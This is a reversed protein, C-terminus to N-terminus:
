FEMDCVDDDDDVGFAASDLIVAADNLSELREKATDFSLDARVLAKRTKGKAGVIRYEVCVYGALWGLHRVIHKKAQIDNSFMGGTCERLLDPTLPIVGGCAVAIDRNKAGIKGQVSILENETAYENVPISQIPFKSLVFIKASADRHVLRARGIAQTTENQISRVYADRLQAQVPLNLKVRVGGQMEVSFQEFSVDDNVPTDTKNLARLENLLATVPKIYSGITVLTDVEKFDNIGRLAGFHGCEIGDLEIDKSRGKVGGTIHSSAFLVGKQGEKIKEMAIKIAANAPYSKSNLRNVTQIVQANQAVDIQVIKTDPIINTHSPTADLMIVNHTDLRYPLANGVISIIGDKIWVKDSTPKEMALEVKLLHLTWIMPPIKPMDKLVEARINDPIGRQAVIDIRNEDNIIEKVVSRTFELEHELKEADFGREKLAHLIDKGTDYADDFAAKVEPSCLEYIKGGLEYSTLEKVSEKRSEAFISSFFDEDIIVTRTKYHERTLMLHNEYELSSYPKSLKAHTHIILNCQQSARYQELYACDNKIPCTGKREDCLESYVRFGHRQLQTVYENRVCMTKGDTGVYGRGRMVAPRLGELECATAFIQDQMKNTPVYFEYLNESLFRGAEHAAIEKLVTHTKGAGATIQILTRNFRGVAGLEGDKLDARESAEKVESATVMNQLAERITASLLEQADERSHFIPTASYSIDSVGDKEVKEKQRAKLFDVCSLFEKPIAALRTADPKRVTNKAAAAQLELGAADLQTWNRTGYCVRAAAFIAAHRDGTAAVHALADQWAHFHLTDNHAATTDNHAATQRTTHADPTYDNFIAASTLNSKSLALFIRTTLHDTCGKFVPTATYIPQVGSYLSGDFYYSDQGKDGVYHGCAKAYRKVVALSVPADTIFWLHCRIKTDCKWGHSSSLKIVYSYGDLEPMKATIVANGLEFPTYEHVTGSLGVESLPIGDVDFPIINHSDLPALTPPTGDPQKYKLRRIPQATTVPPSLVLFSKKEHQLADLLAYLAFIDEVQVTDHYFFMGASFGQTLRKGDSLSLTKTCTNNKSTLKTLTNQVATATTQSQTSM